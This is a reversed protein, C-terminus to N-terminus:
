LLLGGERLGEAFEKVRGHYLYSGRDFAVKTVGKDLAKKALLKGVEKAQEKKDGKFNKLELTSCSAITKQARDDILQGYIQKLSRFISVRVGDGYSRIKGSVRNKRRENRQQLKRQLSM